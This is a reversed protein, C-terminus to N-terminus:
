EASPTRYLANSAKKYLELAENAADDIVTLIATELQEGRYKSLLGDGLFLSAVKGGGTCTVAILGDDSEKTALPKELMESVTLYQESARRGNELAAEVDPHTQYVSM